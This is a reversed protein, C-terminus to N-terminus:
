DWFGIETMQLTKNNCDPCFYTEGAILKIFDLKRSKCRSCRRDKTRDSSEIIAHCLQCQYISYSKMMMGSGLYFDPKFYGCPCSASVISGM